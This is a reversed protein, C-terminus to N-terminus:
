RGAGSLKLRFEPYMTEAGGRQAIEPINHKERFEKAKPGGQGAMRKFAFTM